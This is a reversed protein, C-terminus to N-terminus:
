NYLIDLKKFTTRKEYLWIEINRSFSIHASVEEDKGQVIVSYPKPTEMKPVNPEYCNLLEPINDILAQRIGARM